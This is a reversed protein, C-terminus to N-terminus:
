SRGITLLDPIPALIELAAGAAADVARRETRPLQAVAVWHGGSQTGEIAGVLRDLARRARAVLHPSRATILPALLGLLERTASVDALVSALSTGSGYDDAGSLSDRLADELVEHCRLPLGSVGATTLPFWTAISVGSVRALAASLATTDHAAAGDDHRTWLDLEVRHFGRFAPDARGRVLGATTGDIALGHAGFASYASDDQGIRLWTRHAVLWQAQAAATDAQALDRALVSVQGTLLTLESRVWLRYTKMLPILEDRTVPVVPPGSGGHNPDRPVKETDSVRPPRGALDCGWIYDDGARMRVTLTRTSWAAISKVSAVIDGSVPHFLYITAAFSSRNDIAFTALGPNPARWGPACTTTTVSIKEHATPTTAASAAARPRESERSHHGGRTAAHAIGLACVLATAAGAAVAIV